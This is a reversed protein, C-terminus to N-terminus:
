HTTGYRKIIDSYLRGLGSFTGAQMAASVAQVFRGNLEKYSLQDDAPDYKLSAFFCHSWFPSVYEINNQSAFRRWQSWFSSTLPSGFATHM